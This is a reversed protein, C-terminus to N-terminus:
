SEPYLDVREGPITNLEPPLALLVPIGAEGGPDEEWEPGVGVVRAVSEQRKSGRTIVRIPTGPEMRDRLEPRVRTLLMRPAETTIILIRDGRLVRQGEVRDLASIRGSVPAAITRDRHYSELQRRLDERATGLDPRSAFDEAGILEQLTNGLESILRESEKVEVELAEFNKRSLEFEDDSILGERFLRGQREMSSRARELRIRASALNVQHESWELRLRHYDVAYRREERLPEHLLRIEDLRLRILDLEGRQTDPELTFLLEGEEVAQFRSVPLSVIRGDFPAVIEARRVVVEGVLTPPGINNRWLVLVSVLALLFVLPPLFRVRFERLLLRGPIPVPKRDAM